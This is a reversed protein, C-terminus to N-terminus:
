RKNFFRKNLRNNKFNSYKSSLQKENNEFKYIPKITETLKTNKGTNQHLKIINLTKLKSKCIQILQDITKNDRCFKNLLRTHYHYFHLFATKGYNSFM